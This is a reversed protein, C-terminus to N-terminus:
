QCGVHCLYVVKLGDKKRKTWVLWFLLDATYTHKEWSSTVGLFQGKCSCRMSQNRKTWGCRPQSVSGSWVVKRKRSWDISRSPKPSSCSDRDKSSSLFGMVAHTFEKLSTWRDTFSTMRSLVQLPICLLSFRDRISYVTGCFPFKNKENIKKIEKM